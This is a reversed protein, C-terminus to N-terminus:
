CSHTFSYRSILILSMYVFILSESLNVCISINTNNANPVKCCFKGTPATIGERRSLRVKAPGSNRYFGQIHDNEGIPSGNPYLWEGLAGGGSPTDPSSCCQSNDTTCLLAEENEEGINTILIDSNNGYVEGGLSIHM